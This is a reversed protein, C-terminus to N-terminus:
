AEEWAILAAKHLEEVVARLESLAIDKNLAEISEAAGIAWRKAMLRALIPALREMSLQKWDEADMEDFQPPTFEPQKVISPAFVKRGGMVGLVEDFIPDTKM